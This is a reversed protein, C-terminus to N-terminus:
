KSLWHILSEPWFDATTKNKLGFGHGGEPYLHMESKLGQLLSAQYYLISNQVSVSKDDAAHVLFSPPSSPSLQKEPSFIQLLSDVPKEGLLNRRSGVHVYPDLFSIVPYILISFDPRGSVSDKLNETLNRNYLTSATAALHGGASFGM